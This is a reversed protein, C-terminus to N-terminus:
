GAVCRRPRSPAIRKARRATARIESKKIRAVSAIQHRRLALIDADPRDPRGAVDLIRDPADRRPHLHRFARASACLTLDTHLTAPHTSRSAFGMVIFSLM